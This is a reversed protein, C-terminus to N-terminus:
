FESGELYDLEENNFLIPFDTCAKPFLDLFPKFEQEIPKKFKDFM